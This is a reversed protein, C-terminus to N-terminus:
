QSFRRLMGELQAFEVGRRFAAERMVTSVAFMARLIAKAWSEVSRGPYIAIGGGGVYTEDLNQPATISHGDRCWDMRFKVTFPMSNGCKHFNLCPTFAVQAEIEWGGPPTEGERSEVEIKQLIELCRAEKMLTEVADIVKNAEVKNGKAVREM